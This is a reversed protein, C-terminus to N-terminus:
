RVIMVTCNVKESVTRSVSGMIFRSIGKLGRHGMVILDVHENNAYQVIKVEPRGISVLTRIQVSNQYKRKLEDLRNKMKYREEKQLDRLYSSLTTAERTKYNRIKKDFVLAPSKIEVMVTLVIIESGRILKALYVAKNLANEAQKSGDYPVLIKRFLV